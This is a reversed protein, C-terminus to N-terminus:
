RLATQGQPSRSWYGDAAFLEDVLADLLGTEYVVDFVTYRRRILRADPYSSRMLERTLGIQEPATPCGGLALLDRLEAVPLLHARLRARLEPWRDRLLALRERLVDPSVHKARCEELAREILAPHDRLARIDREMEAWAPWGAVARDIDLGSLDRALL